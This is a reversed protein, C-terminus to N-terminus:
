PLSVIFTLAGFYNSISEALMVAASKDYAPIKLFLASVMALAIVMYEVFTAGMQSRRLGVGALRAQQGCGGNPAPRRCSTMGSRM